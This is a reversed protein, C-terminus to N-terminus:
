ALQKLRAISLKFEEAALNYSVGMGFNRLLAIKKAKNTTDGRSKYKMELTNTISLSISSSEGLSPGKGYVFGNYRSFTKTNGISDSQVTQYYGFKEDGFNPRYSYSLSPTMMHRIAQVGYERNFLVTGYVRSNISASTSYSRIANFGDITDIEIEQLQENYSYDLKKFYWIEDYSVSPSITFHKLLKFSASIPISHKVGNSGQDLLFPITESTIDFVSDVITQGGELVLKGEDDFINETTVPIALRNTIKNTAALAYRFNIKEYWKNGSSGNKKFPYINQVNFTINPLLLDAQKTNLNQNFRGNIGL